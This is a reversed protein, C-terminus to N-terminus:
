ALGGAKRVVSRIHDHFKLDVDLLVGLDLHSKMSPITLGNMFYNPHTLDSITSLVALGCVEKPEHQSGM